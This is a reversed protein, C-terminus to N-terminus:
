CMSLEADNLQSLVRTLPLKLQWQNPLSIINSSSMTMTRTSVLQRGCYMCVYIFKTAWSFVAFNSKPLNQHAASSPSTDIGLAMNLSLKNLKKRTFIHFGRLFLKNTQKFLFHWQHGCKPQCYKVLSLRKHLTVVGSRM